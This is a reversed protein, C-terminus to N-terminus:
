RTSTALSSGKTEEKAQINILDIMLNAMPSPKKNIGIVICASNRQMTAINYVFHGEGENNPHLYLAAFTRMNDISNTTGGKIAYVYVGPLYSPLVMKRSTVIQRPSMVPHVGGKRRISNIMKVTFVVLERMLRASIREIKKPLMSRVCRVREKVFRIEQEIFPM